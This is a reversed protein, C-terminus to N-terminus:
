LRLPGSGGVSLCRGWRANLEPPFRRPCRSSGREYSRRHRRRNYHQSGGCIGRGNARGRTFSQRMPMELLL